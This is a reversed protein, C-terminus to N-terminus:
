NKRQSHSQRSYAICTKQHLLKCRSDKCEGIEQINRCAMPHWNTCNNGFKCTRYEYFWCTKKGKVMNDKDGGGKTDGARIEGKELHLLRNILEDHIWNRITVTEVKNVLCTHLPEGRIIMKATNRAFLIMLPGCDYGNTQQTCHSEIYKTRLNLLSGTSALYNDVKAIIQKAHPENHGNNSDM